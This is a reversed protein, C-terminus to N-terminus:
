PFEVLHVNEHVFTAGRSVPGPTEDRVDVSELL